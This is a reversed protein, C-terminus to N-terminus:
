KREKKEACSIVKAYSGRDSCADAVKTARGLTLGAAVVIWSNGRLVSVRYYTRAHSQRQVPVSTIRRAAAASYLMVRGRGNGALRTEVPEIGLRAIRRRASTESMGSVRMIEALTMEKKDSKM